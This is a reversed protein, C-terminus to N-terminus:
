QFDNLTKAEYSAGSSTLTSYYIIVSVQRTLKNCLHINRHYVNVNLAADTPLHVRKDTEILGM